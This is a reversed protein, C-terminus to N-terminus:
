EMVEDARARGFRFPSAPRKLPRSISRWDTSPRRGDTNATRMAPSPNAVRWAMAYARLAEDHSM